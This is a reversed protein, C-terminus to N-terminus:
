GSKHAARRRHYTRGIFSDIVNGEQGVFLEDELQFDPYSAKFEQVTVWTADAAPQGQWSILVEWTGRNLRARLVKAPVPLARGHHIPPLPVMATPPTGEFKKLLGVHFM